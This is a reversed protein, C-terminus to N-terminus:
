YAIMQGVVRLVDVALREIMGESGMGAFYIAFLARVLDGPRRDLATVDVNAIPPLRALARLRAREPPVGASARHFQVRAGAALGRRKHRSAPLCQRNAGIAFGRGALGGCRENAPARYRATWRVRGAAASTQYISGHCRYPGIASARCQDLAVPFARVSVCFHRVRAGAPNVKARIAANIESLCKLKPLGVTRRQRDYRMSQLCGGPGQGSQAGCQDAKRFKEPDCRSATSPQMNGRQGAGGAHLDHLRKPWIRRWGLRFLPVYILNFPYCTADSKGGSALQGNPAFPKRM